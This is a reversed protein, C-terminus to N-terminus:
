SSQGVHLFVSLSFLFLKLLNILFYKTQQLFLFDSLPHNPSGGPPPSTLHHFVGPAHQTLSLDLYNQKVQVQPPPPVLHIIESPLVTSPSCPENVPLRLLSSVRICGVSFIIRSTRKRLSLRSRRCLCVPYSARFQLYREEGSSDSPSCRHVWSRGHM